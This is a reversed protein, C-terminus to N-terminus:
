PVIITQSPFTYIEATPVIRKRSNCDNSTFTGTVEQKPVNQTFMWSGRITDVGNAVVTRVANKFGGFTGFEITFKGSDTTRITNVASEIFTTDRDSFEFSVLIEKKPIASSSQVIGSLIFVIQPPAIFDSAGKGLTMSSFFLLIIIIPIKDKM